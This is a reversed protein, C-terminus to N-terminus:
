VHTHVCIYTPECACTHGNVHLGSTSQSSDKGTGRWMTNNSKLCPRESVGARRNAIAMSSWPSPEGAQGALRLRKGSTMACGPQPLLVRPPQHCLLLFSPPIPGLERLALASPSSFCPSTQREPADPGLAPSSYKQSHRKSASPLSHTYLTTM